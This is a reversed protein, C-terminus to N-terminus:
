GKKPDNLVLSDLISLYQSRRRPSDAEVDNATVLVFVHKLHIGRVVWYRWVGDQEERFEGAIGSLPAKRYPSFRVVGESSAFPERTMHLFAQMDGSESHFASITVAGREDPPFINVIDGDRALKWESPYEISYFGAPSEFKKLEAGSAAASGFALIILLRLLM